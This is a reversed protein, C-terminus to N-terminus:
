GRHSALLYSLAAQRQPSGSASAQLDTVAGVSRGWPREPEGIGPGAQVGGPPGQPATVLTSPPGINSASLAACTPRPPAGPPTSSDSGSM